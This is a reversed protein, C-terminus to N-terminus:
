KILVKDSAKRNIKVSITNEEVQYTVIEGVRKCYISEGLPSNISVKEKSNEVDEAVLEVTIIREKGAMTTLTLNVNDGVNIQDKELEEVQIEITNAYQRELERIRSVIIKEKELYSIIEEPYVTDDGDMCPTKESKLNIANLKIKEKEQKLQELIHQKGEKTMRLKKISM